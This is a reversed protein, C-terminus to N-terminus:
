PRDPFNIERSNVPRDDAALAAWPAASPPLSPSRSGRGTGAEFDGEEELLPAADTWFRHAAEERGRTSDTDARGRWASCSCPRLSFPFM